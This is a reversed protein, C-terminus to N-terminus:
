IAPTLTMAPNGTSRIPQPRYATERSSSLPGAQSKRDPRESRIGGTSCIRPIACRRCRATSAFATASGAASCIASLRRLLRGALDWLAIEVGSAATVTVGAIAGAGASRMLMKTYLKDM